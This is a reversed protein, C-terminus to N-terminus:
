KKIKFTINNEEDTEELEMMPEDMEEDEGDVSWAGQPACAELKDQLPLETQHQKLMDTFDVEELKKGVFNSQLNLDQM